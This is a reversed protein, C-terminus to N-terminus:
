AGGRFLIGTTIDLFYYGVRFFTDSSGPCVTVARTYAAVQATSVSTALDLPAASGGGGDKGGEM